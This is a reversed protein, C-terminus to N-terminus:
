LGFTRPERRRREPCAAELGVVQCCDYFELSGLIPQGPVRQNPLTRCFSLVMFFGILWIFLAIIDLWSLYEPQPNIQAALIHVAM